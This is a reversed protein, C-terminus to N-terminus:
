FISSSSSENCINNSMKEIRKLYVKLEEETTPPEPYILKMDKDKKYLIRGKKIYSTVGTTFKYVEITGCSNKKIISLINGQGDKVERYSSIM